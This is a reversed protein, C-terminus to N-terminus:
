ASNRHVPAGLQDLRHRLDDDRRLGAVALDVLIGILVAEIQFEGIGIQEAEIAKGANIPQLATLAGINRHM